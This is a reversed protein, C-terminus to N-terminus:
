GCTATVLWPRQEDYPNDVFTARVHFVKEINDVTLVDMIKGVEIIKGQDMLIAADAYKIALNLDHLVIISGVHKDLFKRTIALIAHKQHLDLNSTPEDLFLYRPHCDMEAPWIQALVRALQVRQKEGGSLSTYLRESFDQMGVEHLANKCIQMDIPKAVRNVHPMRGMSVVETVSFDFSLDFSQPLVSRLRALELVSWNELRIDDLLVEGSTPKIEGCLIKLLTSKGAGNPGVVATILGSEVQWSVDHLIRKEGIQFNINRFVLM